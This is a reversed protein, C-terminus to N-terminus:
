HHKEIKADIMKNLRKVLANARDENPLAMQVSSRSPVSQNFQKMKSIQMEHEPKTAFNELVNISYLMNCAKDTTVEINDVHQLRHLQIKHVATAGQAALLKTRFFLIFGDQISFFRESWKKFIRKSTVRLFCKGYMDSKDQVFCLHGKMTGQKQIKLALATGPVVMVQGCRCKFMDKDQPAICAEGCNPCQLKMPKPGTTEEPKKNVKDEEGDSDDSISDDSDNNNSNNTNNNNFNGFGGDDVNDFFGNNDESISNTSANNSWQNNPKQSFVDINGGANNNNSNSNNDNNNVFTDIPSQSNGGSSSTRSRRRSSGRRPKSLGTPSPKKSQNFDNNQGQNNATNGFLQLEDVNGMSKSPRPANDSSINSNNSNNFFVDFDSNDQAVANEHRKPPTDFTMNEFNQAFPDFSQSNQRQPIGGVSQSRNMIFPDFADVNVTPSLNQRVQQAKMANMSTAGKSNGSGNPQQFLITDSQQRAINPHNGHMNSTPASPVDQAFPNLRALAAQAREKKIQAGPSNANNNGVLIVDSKRGSNDSSQHITAFPNSNTRYRQQM